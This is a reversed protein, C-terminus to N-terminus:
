EEEGLDYIAMFIGDKYRLKWKSIDLYKIPYKTNTSMVVHSCIVWLLFDKYKEIVVDVDLYESLNFPKQISITLTDTINVSNSDGWFLNYIINEELSIHSDIRLRRMYKELNIAEENLFKAKAYLGLDLDVIKVFDDFVDTVEDSKFNFFTVNNSKLKLILNESLYGKLNFKFEYNDADVYLDGLINGLLHIRYNKSELKEICSEFCDLERLCTPFEFVLNYDDDIYRRGDNVRPYKTNLDLYFMYLASVYKSVLSFLISGRECKTFTLENHLKDIASVLGDKNEEFLRYLLSDNNVVDDCFNYYNKVEQRIRNCIHYFDVDENILSSSKTVKNPIYLFKWRINLLDTLLNTRRYECKSVIDSCMGKPVTVYCTDSHNYFIDLVEYTGWINTSEKCETVKLIDMYENSYVIRVCNYSIYRNVTDSIDLEDDDYEILNYVFAFFEENNINSKFMHLMDSYECLKERLINVDITTDVDDFDVLKFINRNWDVGLGNVNNFWIYEM